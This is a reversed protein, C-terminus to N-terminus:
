TSEEDRAFVIRGDREIRTVIGADNTTVSVTSGRWAWWWYRPNIAVWAIRLYALSM